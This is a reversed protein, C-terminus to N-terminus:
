RRPALLEDFLRKGEPTRRASALLKECQAANSGQYKPLMCLQTDAPLAACATVFEDRKPVSKWPPDEHARAAANALAEIANYASECSTAGAPAELAAKFAQEQKDAHAHSRKAKSCGIALGAGLVCAIIGRNVM